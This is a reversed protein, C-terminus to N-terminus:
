LVACAFFETVTYNSSWSNDSFEYHFTNTYMMTTPNYVSETCVRIGQECVGNICKYGIDSCNSSNCVQPLPCATLNTATVIWRLQNYTPSNPNMDKQEREQEGTNQSSSNQKCRTATATFQWDPTSIIGSCDEPQGAYNYCIKRVIRNDQDRVLYLRNFNDYEYTTKRGSPDTQTTVGVLPDYTYTFVQVLPNAAFGNRLNQLQTSIQAQTGNNLVATDVLAQVTSWDAGIVRAVVYNNKYGRLGTEKVGATTELSLPRGKADYNFITLDTKFPNANVATEMKEAFVKGSWNKLITRAQTSGTQQEATNQVVMNQEVPQAVRNSTILATELTTPTTKSLPYILEEVRRDGNNLYSKKSSLQYHKSYNYGYKTHVSVPNGNNYETIITSDIDCTGATQYYIKFGVPLLHAPVTNLLPNPALTILPLYTIGRGKEYKYLLNPDNENMLPMTFISANDVLGAYKYYNKTKRLLEYGEELSKYEKQELLLGRLWDLDVSPHYPFKYYEGGDADIAFNSVTKGTTGTASKTYETVMSYGLANGKLFTFPSGPVSGFQDLLPLNPDTRFLYNKYYFPPLGFIAGSNIGTEDKYEYEKSLIVTSGNKHEIKKIRKGSAYLVDKDVVYSIHWNLTIFFTNYFDAPNHLSNPIVRVKFTGPPLPLNVRFYQSDPHVPLIVGWPGDTQNIRIEYNMDTGSPAIGFWPRDFVLQVQGTIEPGITIDHAYEGSSYYDPHKIFGSMTDKSVVPNIVSSELLHFFDPYKTVNQEYHLLIDGGTANTIKKLLGAENMEPNVTRDLPFNFDFFTLFQGNNKGNYYGWADQSNSFRNPLKVNSYEYKYLLQSESNKGQFVVSDLFMRYHSSPDITQLYNLTNTSVDSQPFSHYLQYSKVFENNYNKLVLKKLAHGSTLDKRTTESKEFHLSGEPFRIESVQYQYSWQQSFYSLARRPAYPYWRGAVEVGNLVKDYSRTYRSVIEQEYFYEIRENLYTEIEMLHWGTYNYYGANPLQAMGDYSSYSYSNITQDYDIATRTKNKNKGYYYKNGLEDTIIWSDFGEATLTGREIKIDAFKQLIIAKDTPDFIFKGGNGNYDYFYQDPILDLVNQIEDDELIARETQSTFAQNYNTKYMIGKPSEDPLGRVSRSIMGGYQLSWGIGARSAVEEVLVGRSHYSLRVPISLEKTTITHFDVSINALGSYQSVPVVVSKTMSAMEPPPVIFDQQQSFSSYFSFQLVLWCIILRCYNM